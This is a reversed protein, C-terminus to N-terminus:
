RTRQRQPIKQTSRKIKNQESKVAENAAVKDQNLHLRGLVSTTEGDHFHSHESWSATVTSEASHIEQTQERDKALEALNGDIDKILASATSRITELSAKLESLERGSSWGAVYGFSYDSTDLGYHRCVTYAVSEAEVERTRRDARHQQEEKPANFDIDHLKAHAIEHIVTKLTQLESMDENIAIRKDVIHYYGHSGGDIKEFGIPVPSAKELAAFFDSYKEVNGSLEGAVISAIEKGETDSVDFVNVVKFAPRQIEVSEKVPNGNEDLVPKHTDPDMRDRDIKVKYPAPALIRIAKSGRKVQRGHETKWANYGAILSADPKQQFILLINNFSYSHFKSMATLYDKYKRSEFLEKVGQELQETIEKVKNNITGNYNKNM